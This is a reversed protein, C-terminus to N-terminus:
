ESTVTVMEESNISKIFLPHLTDKGLPSSFLQSQYLLSLVGMFDLAAGLVIFIQPLRPTVLLLSFIEVAAVSYTAIKMTLVIYSIKTKEKGKAIQDTQRKKKAIDNQM